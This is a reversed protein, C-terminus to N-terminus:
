WGLMLRTAKYIYIHIYLIRILNMNKWVKRRWWAHSTFGRSIEIFLDFYRTINKWCFWASHCRYFGSFDVMLNDYLNIMTMKLGLFIVTQWWVRGKKNSSSLQPASEMTRVSSRQSQQDAGLHEWFDLINGTSIVLIHPIHWVFGMFQCDSSPFHQVLVPFM